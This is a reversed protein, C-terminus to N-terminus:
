QRDIIFQKPLGDEYELEPQGMILPRIYDICAQTVGNATENIYEDPVHKAFNAINEVPFSDVAHAYPENSTRLIVAMHGSRGSEALRVSNVGVDFGEDLDTKSAIHAACRQLVNLEVSRVKTGLKEKVLMELTRGAGSLGVHGFIDVGKHSAAGIYEGNRDRVGESVAMIVDPRKKLVAKVDDIFSDFDFPREPLYIGDVDALSAASTLWGSDRGMIEVVTVAPRTYVACDRRIERLATAVFKAASGYGPTHDTVGLDNDITKPVGFVCLDAGRKQAERYLKGVTDMSDNGGIYFFYRIGYADFLDFLKDYVAKNEPTDSNEPLKVRCSGLAAAPTNSLLKLASDPVKEDLDCIRGELMGEAGNFAGYLKGILESDRCGRIVGALTANIATSPGGSQGVIANGKLM